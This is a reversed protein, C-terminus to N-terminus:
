ILDSLKTRELILMIKKEIELIPNRITCNKIHCCDLYDSDPKSCCVFDTNPEVAKIIELLSIESSKKSLRYGGKIGQYSYIINQRKLEQLIKSILVFSVNKKDSIEKATIVSKDKTSNTSSDTNQALYQAALLAYEIKKSLKIM